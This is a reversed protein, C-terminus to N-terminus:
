TEFARARSKTCYYIEGSAPTLGMRQIEDLGFMDHVHTTQVHFGAEELRQVYDPGYRRVHDEQGFERKRDKPDTISPDEFTVDSMIPVLLIAWGDEKLVRYFERMAQKDDHVHELVHSCYINDITENQLEIATIDMKMKVRPNSLDATIYSDGLASQLRSQFCREPAIHLFRRKKGNFTDTKSKLYLWLFRHRELAGCHVCEADARKPDGFTRFASARGDCVPCQRQYGIYTLSRLWFVVDRMKGRLELPLWKLLQMAMAVGFQNAINAFSPITM